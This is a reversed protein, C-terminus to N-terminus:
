GRVAFGEDLLEQNLFRGNELIRDTDLEGRRYMVDALYRDYRDSGYTKIAIKRVGKLRQIVFNRAEVGGRMGMEPTNIGHLRLRKHVFTKFGCDIYVVLTDGDVVRDM